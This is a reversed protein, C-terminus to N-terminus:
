AGGRGWSPRPRGPAFWRRPRSGAPLVSPERPLGVGGRYQNKGARQRRHHRHLGGGVRRGRTPTTGSIPSPFAAHGARDLRATRTGSVSAPGADVPVPLREPRHGERRGTEVCRPDGARHGRRWRCGCRRVPLRPQVGRDHRQRHLVADLSETAQGIDQTTAALDLRDASPDFPDSHCRPGAVECAQRCCSRRM